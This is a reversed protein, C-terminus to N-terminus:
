HRKRMIFTLEDNSLQKKIQDYIGKAFIMSYAQIAIDSIFSQAFNFLNFDFATTVVDIIDYYDCADIWERNYKLEEDSCDIERRFSNRDDNLFYDGLTITIGLEPDPDGELEYFEDELYEDYIGFKEIELIHDEMVTRITKVLLEKNNYIEPLVGCEIAFDKMMAYSVSRSNSSECDIAIATCIGVAFLANGNLTNKVTTSHGIPVNGQYGFQM